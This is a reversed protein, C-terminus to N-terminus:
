ALFEAQRYGQDHDARQGGGGPGGGLRGPKPVKGHCFEM